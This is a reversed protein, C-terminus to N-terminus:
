TVVVGVDALIQRYYNRTEVPAAAIGKRSLNGQGWNYAALALAWSGFRRYLKAVYRGAGAISELADYPNVGFEAATAPLFQAIGIAGALSKVAGSIIEPRFRSEQYLLRALLNRPIGNSDEAAIIASRYQAPIKSVSWGSKSVNVVESFIEKLQGFFNDETDSAPTLFNEFTSIGDHVTFFPDSPEEAPGTSEDFSEGDAADLAPRSLLFYGAGGLAGVALLLAGRM